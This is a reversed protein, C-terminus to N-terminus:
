IECSDKCSGEEREKMCEFDATWAEGMLELREEHTMESLEDWREFMERWNVFIM